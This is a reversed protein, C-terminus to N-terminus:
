GGGYLKEIEVQEALQWVLEAAPAQSGSCTVSAAGMAMALKMQAMRDLGKELGYAMAAVVSDGAGVTNVAQVHPSAAQFAADQSLFLAGVAGLSIVVEQVGARLLEGGGALLEERTSLSRGLVGSLEEGNPKVLWPKARIGLQMAARDADLFVRAGLAQFRTIWQAYIGPDAEAPLSGSLIVIDGPHLRAAIKERLTEIARADAAPGPENVDTTEGSVPDTIKLNTRTEGDVDAHLTELGMCAAQELLWSGASGGVLLCAVSPMGLSALCKSINLGKGGPDKRVSQIRNVKGAAFGPIVVSKDVAPNLTVTYIM